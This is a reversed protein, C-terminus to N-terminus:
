PAGRRGARAVIAAGYSGLLYFLQARLQRTNPSDGESPNGLKALQPGFTSCIWAALGKREEATAAVRDMIVEIGGVAASLVDANPDSRVAASLRLDRSPPLRAIDLRM